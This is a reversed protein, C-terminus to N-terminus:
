FMVLLTIEDEDEDDDQRARKTQGGRTKPAVVISLSPVGDITEGDFRARWDLPLPLINSADEKPTNKLDADIHAALFKTDAKDPDVISERDIVEEDLM